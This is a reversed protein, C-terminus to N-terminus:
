CQSSKNLIQSNQQGVLCFPCNLNCRNTLEVVVRTPKSYVKRQILNHITNQARETLNKISKMNNELCKKLNVMDWLFKRIRNVRINLQLCQM